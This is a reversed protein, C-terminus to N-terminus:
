FVTSFWILTFYLINGEVVYKGHFYLSNWWILNVNTSNFGNQLTCTSSRKLETTCPTGASTIAIPNHWAQAHRGVTQWAEWGIHHNKDCWVPGSSCTHYFIHKYQQQWAHRSKKKLGAALGKKQERWPPITHTHWCLLVREQSSVCVKAASYSSMFTFMLLWLYSWVCDWDCLSVCLPWGDPVTAVM